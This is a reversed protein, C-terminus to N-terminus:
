PKAGTGAVARVAAPPEDEIRGGRSEFRRRWAALHESCALDMLRLDRARVVVRAGEPVSELLSALKPLQLFTAAGGLDVVIRREREDHSLSASLQSLQLLLKIGALALGVGVGLLLDASFITTLTVAYIAVESWGHRRLRVVAGLDLLKFGTFVLLGALASIPILGLVQPLLTVFLLLWLGHLMASARTRAGAKVNASSRVIVGTLPLAGLLGCLMNGVGQASLERDLSARPGGHMQDVASACLLSEASAILALQLGVGLLAPETLLRMPDFAALSFESLLDTPIRVFAVDLGLLAALVAASAVAALPAPVAQGVRAGLRPWLAMVAITWVGLALAAAGASWGGAVARELAGPLAALNAPGGGVPAADLMVHVQSAVILAGIGALMGHLVTPSVARFFRGLGALGGALQIAGAVVLALSMGPVGYRQVGTYVVVALGAAAGSVQMPAGSLAGVILGGVVGSILGAIPPYGSAIAIGMALPLAVLFVVISARADAGLSGLSGLSGFRSSSAKM